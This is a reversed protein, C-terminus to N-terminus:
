AGFSLVHGIGRHQPWIFHQGMEKVREPVDNEPIENVIRSGSEIEGQANKGWGSQKQLRRQSVGSSFSLVGPPFKFICVTQHGYTLVLKAKTGRPALFLFEEGEMPGRGKRPPPQPSGLTLWRFDLAQSESWQRPRSVVAPKFLCGRYIRRSGPGRKAVGPPPGM